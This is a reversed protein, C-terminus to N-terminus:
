LQEGAETADARAALWVGALTQRGWAEAAERLAWAEAQREVRAMWPSALVADAVLPATDAIVQALSEADPTPASM